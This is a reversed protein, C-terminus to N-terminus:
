LHKAKQTSAFKRMTFMQSKKGQQLKFSSSSKQKSTPQRNEWLYFREGTKTKTRHVNRSWIDKKNGDTIWIQANESSQGGDGTWQNKILIWLVKGVKPWTPINKLM